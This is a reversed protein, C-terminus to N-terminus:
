DITPEAKREMARLPELSSLLNLSIFKENCKKRRRLVSILDQPFWRPSYLQISKDIEFIDILLALHRPDLFLVNDRSLEREINSELRLFAEDNQGEGCNVITTPIKENISVSEIIFM